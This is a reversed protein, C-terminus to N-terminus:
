NRAPHLIRQQTRSRSSRSACRRFIDELQMVRFSDRLRLPHFGLACDKAIAIKVETRNNDIRKVELVKIGPNYLMLEQPSQGMRPGVLLLTVETGRQGGAPTVNDLRPDAATAQSITGFWCALAILTCLVLPLHKKAPKDVTSNTFVHCMLFEGKFNHKAFLNHKVLEKAFRKSSKVLILRPKTDRRAEIERYKKM